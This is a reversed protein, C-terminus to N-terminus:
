TKGPGIVHPAARGVGEFPPPLHKLAGHKERRCVGCVCDHEKVSDWGLGGEDLICIQDVLLSGGDYSKLFLENASSCGMQKLWLGQQQLQLGDGTSLADRHGTAKDPECRNMQRGSGSHRDTSSKPSYPQTLFLSAVIQVTAMARPRRWTSKAM